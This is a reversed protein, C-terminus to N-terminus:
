VLTEEIQNGFVTWGDIPRRGFLELYPGPSLKMVAERVKEPKASHRGRKHEIWSMQNRIGATLGGRIGLLMIEHSNRWYNGMGIQPKVWVFSSKFEFGWADFIKPADFLFANTIWLHLHCQEAALEGIPMACIDDVSMTDYHDDTSGRTSQNSYRWPPDAYICSFSQGHLDDLNSCVVSESTSQEAVKSQETKVRAALKYLGASTAEKGAEDCAAMYTEFEDESVRAAKQWRSSQIHTIGLELLTNSNVNRRAKPMKELLEGAKREACLKIRVARNIVKVSANQRKALVRASEAYDATEAAETPSEVLALRKEAETIHALSSDM